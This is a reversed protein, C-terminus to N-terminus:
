KPIQKAAEKAAKAHHHARAKHIHAKAKDISKDPESEVAAKARDGLQESKEVTAKAGEKLTTGVQAVAGASVALASVCIIIRNGTAERRRISRLNVARGQPRHASSVQYLVLVVVAGLVAVLLSYLDLGTVGAMGVAHFLWGGVLAGMVGLVMDLLVGEGRGKVIKSAILGSVLGLVVWAIISM